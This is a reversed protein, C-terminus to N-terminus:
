RFSPEVCAAHSSGCILFVREGKGTLEKVVRILQINRLDNTFDMMDGLYGPLGYSDDVDRWNPGDPFYKKWYGDVDEVSKFNHQQNVYEARKYFESIYEEPSAPKGHRLQGFYPNLIQALAIQEPEFKRLLEKALQEKSLDWNYIDLGDRHALHKVYGGEGLNEVPDMLGPILFDLRGEVLAITPKLKNWEDEIMKIQPHNADRSHEAGFIIFSSDSLIYPRAHDNILDYNKFSIISDSFVQSSQVVLYYPPSKWAILYIITLLIVVGVLIFAIIKLPKKM